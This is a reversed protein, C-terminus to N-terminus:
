QVNKLHNLAKQLDEPTDIGVSEVNTEIMKIKKGIEQYRIAEIKEAAELPTIGAACFAVFSNGFVVFLAALRLLLRGQM